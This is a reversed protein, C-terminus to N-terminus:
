KQRRSEENEEKSKKNHCPKCLVQLDGQFLRYAFQGISKVSLELFSGCEIIHDVQVDSQKFWEKCINCQHEFRQRKNDGTYPRRSDRLVEFRKPDRSWARRFMARLKNCRDRIEQEQVTGKRKGMRIAQKTLYVSIEIRLEIPLLEVGEFYGTAWLKELEDLDEDTDTM